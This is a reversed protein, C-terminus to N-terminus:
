AHPIQEAHREAAARTYIQRARETSIRMQRGIKAFSLGSQRLTYARDLRAQQEPTRWQHGRWVIKGGSAPHWRIERDHLDIVYMRCHTLPQFHGLVIKLQVLDVIPIKSWDIM